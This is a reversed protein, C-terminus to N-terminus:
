HGASRSISSRQVHSTRYSPPLRPVSDACVGANERPERLSRPRRKGSIPSSSGGTALSRASAAAAGAMLNGVSTRPSSRRAGNVTGPGQSSSSRSGRAFLSQARRENSGEARGRAATAGANCRRPSIHPLQPPCPRLRRSSRQPEAGLNASESITDASRRLRPVAMVAHVASRWACSPQRCQSDRCALSDFGAEVVSSKKDRFCPTASLLKAVSGYRSAPVRSCCNHGHLDLLSVCVAEGVQAWTSHNYALPWVQSARKVGPCEAWEPLTGAVVFSTNPFKGMNYNCELTYSHCLDCDRYVAVRGSGEKGLGDKGACSAASDESFDCSCFAFHPSNVECLRAFGANWAQRSGKLKNALFFCGSKSAHAHFDVYLLLRSRRSWHLILQRAAWTGEHEERAATHYYRNLNLGLSNTRYHGRAVGDPNLM